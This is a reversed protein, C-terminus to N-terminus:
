SSKSTDDLEQLYRRILEARQIDREEPTYDGGLILQLHAPQIILMLRLLETPNLGPLLNRDVGFRLRSLLTMAERSNMRRGHRLNGYSRWVIDEMGATDKNFLKSRAEEELQVVREIMTILNQLIEKEEKGLTRENSFQYFDGTHESNEGYFGRVTMGHKPFDKIAESIQQTLVLAPLHLMVSGRLGTGTNTPCAALFGFTEHYAYPLMSGLLDDLRNMESLLPFMQFGPRMAYMRLHDEENVMLVIDTTPSLHVSRNKDGNELEASILHSEKLCAREISSLQNLDLTEFDAFEAPQGLAEDILRSVQELDSTSAHPPFNFGELNRAYRVRSSVVIHQQPGSRNVWQDIKQLFPNEIM